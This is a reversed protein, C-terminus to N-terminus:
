DEYNRNISITLLPSSIIDRLRIFSIQITLAGLNILNRDGPYNVSHGQHVSEPIYNEQKLVATRTRYILDNGLILLEIDTTQEMELISLLGFKNDLENIFVLFDYGNIKRIFDNRNLKICLSDYGGVEKYHTTYGISKVDELFDVIELPAFYHKWGGSLAGKVNYLINERCPNTYDTIYTYSFDASRVPSKTLEFVYEENRYYEQFDEYTKENFYVTIYNLIDYKSGFFRARQQITDANGVKQSRPMYTSILGEITFGRELKGGGVLIFFKNEKFYEEWVIGKDFNGAVLTILTKSAVYRVIADVNVRFFDSIYIDYKNIFNDTNRLLESILLKVLDYYNKLISITNHPHIFGSINTVDKSSVLLKYSNEFHGLLFHVLNGRTPNKPNEDIWKIIREKNEFLEKNGFYNSHSQLSLMYDPKFYDLLGTLVHGAPTATIQLYKPETLRILKQISYHTSSFRLSQTVLNEKNLSNLSAQDSEDDVIFVKGLANSYQSLKTIRTAHKLCVVVNKTDGTLKKEFNLDNDSLINIPLERYENAFRELTQNHLNIKTGSFIIATNFGLDFMKLSVGIFHSTKGSQVKGILLLRNCDSKNLTQVTTDISKIYEPDKGKIHCYEDLLSSHIPILEIM